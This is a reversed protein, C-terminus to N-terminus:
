KARRSPRMASPVFWWLRREKVTTLCAKSNGTSCAWPWVRRLFPRCGTCQKPPTNPATGRSQTLPPQLLDAEASPTTAKALLQLMLEEPEMGLSLLLCDDRYYAGLYDRHELMRGTAWQIAEYPFLRSRIEIDVRM